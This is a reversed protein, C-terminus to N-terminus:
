GWSRGGDIESVVDIYRMAAIVIAVLSWVLCLTSSSCMNVMM